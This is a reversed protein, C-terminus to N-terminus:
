IQHTTQTDIRELLRLFELDNLALTSNVSPHTRFQTVRDSFGVYADLTVTVSGENICLLPVNIPIIM